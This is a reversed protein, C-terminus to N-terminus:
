LDVLKAIAADVVALLQPDARLEDVANSVADRAAKLAEACEVLILVEGADLIMSQKAVRHVEARWGLKSLADSTPHPDSM